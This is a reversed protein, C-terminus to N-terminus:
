GYAAGTRHSRGAPPGLSTFVFCGWCRTWKRGSLCSVLSDQKDVGSEV